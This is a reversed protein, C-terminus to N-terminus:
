GKVMLSLETCDEGLENKAIIKYSGCDRPNVNKIVLTITEQDEFLFKYRGEAKIEKGEHYWKVDPNPYGLVKAELLASGGVNAEFIKTEKSFSPKEPVRSAPSM